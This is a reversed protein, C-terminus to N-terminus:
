RCQYLDVYMIHNMNTFLNTTRVINYILNFHKSGVYLYQFGSQQTTLAQHVISIYVVMLAYLM